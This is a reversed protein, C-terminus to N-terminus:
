NIAQNTHNIVQNTYNVILKITPITSQNGLNIEKRNQIEEIYSRRHPSSYYCSFISNEERFNKISNEERYNKLIPDTVIVLSRVKFDTSKTGLKVQLKSDM